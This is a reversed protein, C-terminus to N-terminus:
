PCRQEAWRGFHTLTLATVSQVLILGASLLAVAGVASAFAPAFRTSPWRAEAALAVGLLSFLVATLPAMPIYDARLSTLPGADLIWAALSLLGIGATVLGALAATRHTLRVASM